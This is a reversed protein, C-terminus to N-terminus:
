SISVQPRQVEEYSFFNSSSIFGLYFHASLWGRQQGLIYRRVTVGAKYKTNMLRLGVSQIVCNLFFFLM